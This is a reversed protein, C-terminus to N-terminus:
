GRPIATCYKTSEFGFGIKSSAICGLTKYLQLLDASCASSSLIICSKVSRSFSSSLSTRSCGSSKSGSIAAKEEWAFGAGM